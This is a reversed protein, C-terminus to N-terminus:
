EATMMAFQKSLGLVLFSQQLVETAAHLQFKQNNSRMYKSAAVLLQIGQTTVQEVTSADVVIARKQAFAENLEDEVMPTTVADIVPLLFLRVADDSM